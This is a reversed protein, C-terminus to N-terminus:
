APGIMALLSKAKQAEPSSGHKEIIETLVVRAEPKANKFYQLRGKALLVTPKTDDGVLGLLIDAEKTAGDFDGQEELISLLVFRSQIQYFNQTTSAKVIEEVVPRAETVQGQELKRGAWSLGAMWGEVDTKHSDYFTRFNATSGAHDPKIDNAKKELEAIKLANAAVEAGDKKSDTKPAARLQSIEAQLKEQAKGVDMMETTQKAMIKALEARRGSAKSQQFAYVGYGILAVGVVPALLMAVKGTNNTAYDMAKLITDQFTDPRKLQQEIQKHATM